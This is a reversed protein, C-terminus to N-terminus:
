FTRAGAGLFARAIHLHFAIVFRFAETRLKATRMCTCVMTFDVSFIFLNRNGM